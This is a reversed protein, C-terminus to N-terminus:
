QGNELGRRALIEQARRDLQIAYTLVEEAVAEEKIAKETTHYMQAIQRAMRDVELPTFQSFLLRMYPLIQLFTEEDLEQLVHSLGNLLSENYLFIDKAASFLGTLFLPVQKQMEGSGYFYGEAARIIDDINRKEASILLGLVAGEVQSDRKEKQLYLELVDIFHGDAPQLTYLHILKEIIVNPEGGDLVSFLSLAKHRAYESQHAAKEMQSLYYACNTMSVFDGDEGIAEDVLTAYIAYDSVVGSWYAEALSLAIEGAHGKAKHLKTLLLEQVAEELTGGYVSLDILASEVQASFRYRWAERMLHINQKRVLNPGRLKECFPIELFALQHFFQSLRQHREKKYIDLTTEHPVTSRVPLRFSRALARFDHVLPPVDAEAPLKGRKTGQLSIHLQTLSKDSPSLEGKVFTNRVADTLEYLGPQMKGRLRALERIMRAAEIEDAMSIGEKKLQRAVKLMFQEAAMGSRNEWIYQYFAPAPIGSEYGSAPDSESFSYPMLYTKAHATSLPGKSHTKKEEGLELLGKVHFGGTIVLVRRYKKSAKEIEKAMHMERATCGDEELMEKTYDTRTYYCYDFLQRIFEESTMQFGQLEFYKEWFEHFSRCGTRESLMRVYQSYRFYQESQDVQETKRTVFLYDKYPLDIFVAPICRAAGERLAVLEPSYDLFPYYARYKGNGGKGLVDSKDDYSCYLCIPAQSDESVIHPIFPTCDAPGEILIIDPKYHEITKKVHFSCAPSHHRIPVYVINRSLDYAKQFLSEVEATQASRFIGAM